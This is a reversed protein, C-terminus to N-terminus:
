FVEVLGVLPLTRILEFVPKTRIVSELHRGILPFITHGNKRFATVKYIITPIAGFKDRQNRM